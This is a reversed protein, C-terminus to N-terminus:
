HMEAGTGRRLFVLDQSDEEECHFVNECMNRNCLTYLRHEDEKQVVDKLGLIGSRARIILGHYQQCEIWENTTRAKSVEVALRQEVEKEFLSRCLRGCM